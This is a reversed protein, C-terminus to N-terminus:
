DVVKKKLGVIGKKIDNNKPDVLIWVYKWFFDKKDYALEKKNLCGM